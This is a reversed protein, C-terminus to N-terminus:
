LEINQKRLISPVLLAFFFLYVFCLLSVMYSWQIGVIDALKGQLPPLIGGGLIMMILLSSGQATYKGLGMVSLNFIAPWMISCALGGVLFAYIALYGSTSLGIILAVIGFLSFFLLNKAPKDKSFYFVVIQIIVCIVYYYMEQMSYGALVNAFILIAFALLPMIILFFKQKTKTLNFAMVAGTWRGIMMSGWFMSVFPAIESPTKNGFEPQILLEGLNSGIGVEVGLYTFIGLMGLVLQPYKMAGWGKGRQKKSQYFAFMLSGVVVLVALMLWIIRTQELALKIQNIQHNIETIQNSVELSLSSDHLQKKELALKELKQFENNESSQYTSFVMALCIFLLITMTLLVGLDKKAKEIPEISKGEPLKKSFYFLLAVGVFLLVLGLYLGVVTDLGISRIQESTIAKTEGFLVFAVILPGLTAGLSNVGGALNIRSSGTSADGLLIVFPNAAVQQISFGLAMIFLGFLMGIYTNSEVALIMVVGGLASFLLGYSISNKYGVLTIIERGKFLSFAFLILAGLYYATYFAFDILQSQFQDLHFFEKCFPIFVNNGAPIFGWFFFVSILVYLGSYNTTQYNKM